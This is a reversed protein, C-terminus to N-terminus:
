ERGRVIRLSDYHANAVYRVHLTARPPRGCEVTFTHGRADHVRVDVGLALALAQLTVGDGWVGEERALCPGWGKAEVTDAALSRYYGHGRRVSGPFAHGMQDAIARFQCNGDGAVRVLRFSPGSSPSTKKKKGSPKREERREKHKEERRAVRKRREERRVERGKPHSRRAGGHVLLRM